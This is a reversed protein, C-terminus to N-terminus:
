RVNLLVSLEWSGLDNWPLKAKSVTPKFKLIPSLIEKKDDEVSIEKVELGLAM